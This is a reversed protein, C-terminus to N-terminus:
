VHQQKDLEDLVEICEKVRADFLEQTEIMYLLETIELELIMGTIMGARKPEGVVVRAYIEEGIYNVQDEQNTLSMFTNIDFSFSSFAIPIGMELDVFQPNTVVPPENTNSPNMEQVNTDEDSDDEVLGAFRNKTEKKKEDNKKEKKEPSFRVEVTNRKPCRDGTHNRGPCNLCVRKLLEPCTFSSNPSKTKHIYHNTYERESKGISKCFACMPTMVVRTTQQQQARAYM